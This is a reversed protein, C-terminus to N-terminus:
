LWGQMKDNVVVKHRMFPPLLMGYRGLAMMEDWARQRPGTDIRGSTM